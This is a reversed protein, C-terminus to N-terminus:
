ARVSDDGPWSRGLPSGPATLPIQGFSNIDFPRALRDPKKNRGDSICQRHCGNVRGSHNWSMRSINLVRNLRSMTV